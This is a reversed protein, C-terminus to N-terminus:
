AKQTPINVGPGVAEELSVLMQEAKKNSILKVM